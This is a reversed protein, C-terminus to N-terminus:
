LSIHLMKPTSPNLFIFLKYRMKIWRQLNWTFYVTVFVSRSSPFTERTQLGTSLAESFVSLFAGMICENTHRCGFTLIPYSNCNRARTLLYTLSTTIFIFLGRMNNNYVTILISHTIFIIRRGMWNLNERCHHFFQNQQYVLWTILVERWLWRWLIQSTYRWSRKLQNQQVCSCDCCYERLGEM